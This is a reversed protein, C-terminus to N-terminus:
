SVVESFGTLMAYLVKDSAEYQMCVGDVDTGITEDDNYIRWLKEQLELMNVDQQYTLRLEEPIQAISELALKNHGTLSYIEALKYLIRHNGSWKNNIYSRIWLLYRFMSHKEFLRELKLALSVPRMAASVMVAELVVTSTQHSNIFDIIEEGASANVDFDLRYSIFKLHQWYTVIESISSGSDLITPSYGGDIENKYIELILKIKILQGSKQYYHWFKEDSFMEYIQMRSDASGGALLRDVEAIVTGVNSGYNEQWCAEAYAEEIAYKETKQYEKNDFEM